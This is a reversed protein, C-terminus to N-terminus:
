NILNALNIYDAVSLNEARLTPNIGCELLKEYSILKKVSSKLQKRRQNFAAQTVLELKKIDNLKPLNKQHNPTLRVLTSDVKPAPTFAQPPIQVLPTINCFYQTIISLRGYNSSNPTAILRNAVEKQVLFTM